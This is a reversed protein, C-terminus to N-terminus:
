RSLPEAPSYTLEEGTLAFYLNQLQHVYKISILESKTNAFGHSVIYEYALGKEVWMGWNTWEYQIYNNEFGFRLLWEETLPIPKCWLQDEPANELEKLTCWTVCHVNGFQNFLNGIRFENVKM